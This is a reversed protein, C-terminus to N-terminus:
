PDYWLSVKEGTGITFKISKALLPRLQLIKRWVRSTNRTIKVEWLSKGKLINSHIWHAWGVKPDFNCINWASKLLFAVNTDKPRHIGLGGENKPSCVETWVVRSNKFNLGGGM